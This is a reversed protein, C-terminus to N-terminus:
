QLPSHLPHGGPCGLEVANIHLLVTLIPLGSSEGWGCRRISILCPLEVFEGFEMQVKVSPIAPQVAM